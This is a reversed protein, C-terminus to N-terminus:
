EVNVRLTLNSAKFDDCLESCARLKNSFEPKQRWNEISEVNDWAAFSIFHRPNNSAQFLTISGSDPVNQKSWQAFEEWCDIFDQERGKLVLWDGSTYPQGIVGM